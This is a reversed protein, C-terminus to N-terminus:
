KCWSNYLDVHMWIFHLKYLFHCIWTFLAFHLFHGFTDFHWKHAFYTDFTCLASNVDRIIYTSMFECLTYFHGFHGFIDFHVFTVFHTWFTDLIFKHLFHLIMHLHWMHFTVYLTSDYIFHWLIDYLTCIYLTWIVYLIM